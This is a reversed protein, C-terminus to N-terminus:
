SAQILVASLAPVYCTLMTETSNLAYAPTPQFAGDLEVAASQITVGKTARLDPIANGPYHQTMQLLSASEYVNPLQITLQLNEASEKNIVVLNMGGTPSEVAYATVNSEGVSLQTELLTGAGALTFMLMAYYLPCIQLVSNADNLIPSYGNSDGGAMLNVGSAGGLACTFMFDLGWLATTYTSSINVKNPSNHDYSNCESIRFPLNNKSSIRQLTALDQTLHPDPALLEAITSTSWKASGRYHHQTILDINRNTVAEVFPVTWDTPVAGDAPGTVAVGPTQRVIATRFESWISIFEDLTWNQNALINGPAAYLDPENGIEVGILSPGLKQAVYAVEAAALAPNTVGTFAGALNVGYLCTWGTAALFDALNDVDAPAVYGQQGGPRDPTWVSQDVSTGGLRLMGVGLRQFVGILSKNGGTFLTGLMKEKSYSLGTFADPITGLTKNAIAISAAVIQGAPAPQAQPSTSAEAVSFGHSGLYCTAAAIATNKLLSRRSIGQFGIHNTM